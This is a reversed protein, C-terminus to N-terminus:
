SKKFVPRFLVAEKDIFEFRLGFDLEDTGLTRMRQHLQVPLESQVPQTAHLVEGDWVLSLRQDGYPLDMLAWWAWSAPWTPAVVFLGDQWAVGCGDWLTRAAPRIADVPPHGFTMLKTPDAAGDLWHLSTSPEAIAWALSLLEGEWRASNVDDNMCHAFHLAPSLVAHLHEHSTEQTARQQIVAETCLKVAEYHRALLEADFHHQLHRYLATVYSANTMSVHAGPDDPADKPHLPLLPPLRGETREAWRRLHALLNRSQVVDFTDLTDVFAPVYSIQRAMPAVGTRLRQLYQIAAVKGMHVARNLRPDPTWLRGTKLAKEWALGSKEFIRDADRLALFGSWAMQEGVDSVTFLIPVEVMGNVLVYYVLHARQPDDINVESPRGDPNGFVRTSDANKQAYIGQAAQPNSQAVLLGDVMRQALPEGWDIDIDVRLLRDGEAQCQLLWIVSRDYESQYPAFLQKSVIVGETGYIVEQYGPYLRTTMAVLDDERPASVKLMIHRAYVEDAWPWFFDHLDADADTVCVVDHNGLRYRQPVDTPQAGDTDLIYPQDLVPDYPDMM